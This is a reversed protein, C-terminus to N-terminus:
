LLDKPSVKLTKAIKGLLKLSPSRIGQEISGIYGTSVGVLDALQVQYLERQLRYYQIKEGLTKPKNRRM